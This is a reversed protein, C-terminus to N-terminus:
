FTNIKIEELFIESHECHKINNINRGGIYISGIFDGSIFLSDDKVILSKIKITNTSNKTIINKMSGDLINIKGIFSGIGSSNLNYSKIKTSNTYYGSLYIFKGYKGDYSVIDTMICNSDDSYKSVWSVIGNNNMKIIYNKYVTNDNTGYVIDDIKFYGITRCLIYIYDNDYVMKQISSTSENGERFDSDIIFINKSFIIDGTQNNIKHIIFLDKVTNDSLINITNLNHNICWLNENTICSSVYINEDNTDKIIHKNLSFKGGLNTNTYFKNYWLITTLDEAYKIITYNDSNIGDNLINTSNNNGVTIFYDRQASVLVCINNKVCLVSDVNVETYITSSPNRHYTIASILEYNENYKFICGNKTCPIISINTNNKFTIESSLTNSGINSSYHFTNKNDDSVININNSIINSYYNYTLNLQNLNNDFVMYSISKKNEDSIENNFHLRGNSYVYLYIKDNILKSSMLYTQGSITDSM